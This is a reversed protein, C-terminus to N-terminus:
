KGNTLSAMPGNRSAARLEDPVTITINTGDQVVDQIQANTTQLAKLRFTANPQLLNNLSSSYVSITQNHESGNGHHSGEDLLGGLTHFLRHSPGHLDTVSLGREHQKGAVLDQGVHRQLVHASQVLRSSFPSDYMILRHVVPDGARFATCGDITRLFDASSDM